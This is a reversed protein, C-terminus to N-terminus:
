RFKKGAYACHCNLPIRNAFSASHVTKGEDQKRDYQANPNNRDNPKRQPGLPAFCQLRGGPSHLERKLGLGVGAEDIAEFVKM